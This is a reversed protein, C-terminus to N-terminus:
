QLLIYEIQYSFEQNLFIKYKQKCAREWFPEYDIYPYLDEIDYDVDILDYIKYRYKPDLELLDKKYQLYNQAVTKIAIESLPVLEPEHVIKENKIRARTIMKAIM